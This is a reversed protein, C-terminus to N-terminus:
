GAPHGQGLQEAERHRLKSMQLLPIILCGVGVPDTYPEMLCNTYIDVITVEPDRPGVARHTM